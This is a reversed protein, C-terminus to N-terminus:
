IIRSNFIIPSTSEPVGKSLMRELPGHLLHVALQSFRKLFTNSFYEFM